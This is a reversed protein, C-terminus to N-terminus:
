TFKFRLAEVDSNGDGVKYRNQAKILRTLIGEYAGGPNGRMLERIEESIRGSDADEPLLVNMIGLALGFKGQDLAEIIMYYQMWQAGDYKGESGLTLM